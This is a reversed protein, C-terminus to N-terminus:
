QRGDADAKRSEELERCARLFGTFPDYQADLRVPKIGRDYLLRTGERKRYDEWYFVQKVGGLNVLRKACMICPLNTCYVNKEVYRPVDCNIIANEEAHLCGCNGIAEEGHRDCDNVGGTVNGNYGISLVKRFDPTVIVCGVQLRACTSRRRIDRALNMYVEHFSPRSAARKQAEESAQEQVERSHLTLGANCNKCRPGASGGLSGPAGEFKGCGAVGEYESM